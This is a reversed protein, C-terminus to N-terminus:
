GFLVGLIMQQTDEPRGLWLQCGADGRIILCRIILCGAVRSFGVFNSGVRDSIQQGLGNWAIWRADQCLDVAGLRGRDFRAWQVAEIHDRSQNLRAFILFRDDVDHAIKSGLIPRVWHRNPLSELGNLTFRNLDLQDITDLCPVLIKRDGADLRALFDEGSPNWGHDIDGHSVL